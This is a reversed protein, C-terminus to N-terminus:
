INYKYMKHIHLYRVKAFMRKAVVKMGDYHNDKEKIANKCCHAPCLLYELSSLTASCLHSDYRTIVYVLCNINRPPSTEDIIKSKLYLSDSKM